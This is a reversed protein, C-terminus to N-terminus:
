KGLSKVLSGSQDVEMDLITGLFQKALLRIGYLVVEPMWLGRSPAKSRLIGGNPPIKSARIGYAM